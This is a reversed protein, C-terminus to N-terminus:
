NRTSTPPSPPEFELKEADWFTIKVPTVRGFIDVAVKLMFKSQNIGEIRGTFAQFPGTKIRVRDGIKYIIKPTPNM